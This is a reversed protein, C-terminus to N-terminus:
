LWKKDKWIIKIAINKVRKFWELFWRLKVQLFIKYKWIEFLLKTNIKRSQLTIKLNCWTICWIANIIIKKFWLVIRGYYRCPIPELFCQQYWFRQITTGHNTKQVQSNLMHSKLWVQTTYLQSSYCQNSSHM